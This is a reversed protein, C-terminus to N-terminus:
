PMRRWTSGDQPPHARSPTDATQWAQLFDELTAHAVLHRVVEAMSTGFYEALVDLKQPTLGDLRM